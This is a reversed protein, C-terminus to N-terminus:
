RGNAAESDAPIAADIFRDLLRRSVRRSNEALRRTELLLADPDVGESDLEHRYVRVWEDMIEPTVEPHFQVGLSRGVVYAQPGLETEAILTAGRPLTFSDFHWEFWPGEPILEPDSSRVPVWGIESRSARFGEGGLVRALLQGGFCVGLVPVDGDMAGRLLGTERELFPLSDDFAAFESGLSVILGYDRPDVHRDEIDIRFEDIDAGRDDLWQTILGGPSAEEHQIILARLKRREASV